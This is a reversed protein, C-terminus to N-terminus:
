AVSHGAAELLNTGTGGWMWRQVAKLLGTLAAAGPGAGIDHSAGCGLLSGGPIDFLRLYRTAGPKPFTEPEQMPEPM